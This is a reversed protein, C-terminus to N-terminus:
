QEEDLGFGAKRVAADVEDIFDEHKNVVLELKKGGQEFTLVIFDGAFIKMWVPLMLTYTVRAIFPSAIILLIYFIAESIVLAENAQV